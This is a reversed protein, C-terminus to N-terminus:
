IIEFIEILFLVLGQNNYAGCSIIVCNERTGIVYSKNDIKM